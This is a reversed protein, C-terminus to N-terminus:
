AFAVQKLGVEWLVFISLKVVNGNKNEVEKKGLKIFSLLGWVKIKM